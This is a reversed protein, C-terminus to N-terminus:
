LGQQVDIDDDSPKELRQIVRWTVWLLSGLIVWVVAFLAVSFLNSVQLAAVLVPV